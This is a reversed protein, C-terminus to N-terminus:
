QVRGVHPRGLGRQGIILESRSERSECKVRGRVLNVFDAVARCFQFRGSLQERQGSCPVRHRLWSAVRGRSHHSKLGEALPATHLGLHGLIGM